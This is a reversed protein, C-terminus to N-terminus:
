IESKIINDGFRTCTKDYSRYHAILNEIWQMANTLYKPM